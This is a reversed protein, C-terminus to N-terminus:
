HSRFLNKLKNKIKELKITLQKAYLMKGSSNPIDKVQNMIVLNNNERDKIIKKSILSADNSLYNLLHIEMYKLGNKITTRGCADLKKIFHLYIRYKSCNSICKDLSSKM